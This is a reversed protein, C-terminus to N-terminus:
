QPDICYQKEIAKAWAAEKPWGHKEAGGSYIRCKQLLNVRTAEVNEEDLINLDLMKTLAKIRYKDLSHQQSLQDWPGDRKITLKEPVFLFLEHAALRIWLDYDECAPLSEDFLGFNDFISRQVLISSASVFCRPLCQKYIWGGYKQHIKKPNFWVGNKQWEEDTYCIKHNPFALVSEIQRELKDPKWLDDSDLFALWECRSHKIGTNRASSIGSNKQHVIKIANGFQQLRKQTDDTSGDDVVITEQAGESQALVSEVAQCTLEARNYTPIIVSIHM